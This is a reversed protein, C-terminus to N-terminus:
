KANLFEDTTQKVGLPGYDGLAIHAIQTDPNTIKSYPDNYSAIPEMNKISHEWTEDPLINRYMIAIVDGITKGNADVITEDWEMLYSYPIKEAAKRVEALKPNNASVVIVTIKENEPYELMRDYFSNYSYTNQTSGICISWYRAKADPYEEVSNPIPAPIFSFSLVQDTTLKTRCFLYDTSNNPFYEGRPALMFPVEDNDDSALPEYYGQKMITANSVVAEPTAVAKGTTIDVGEITPLSVGGFEDVGLYHRLCITLRTIDDTFYCVNGEKAEPFLSLDTGEKLVYITFKNGKSETTALYPNVSGNDPTINVDDLGDVVEGTMDNYVSFSFFRTDPYEGSIRLGVNPNNNTQYAYVWYNSFLDPYAGLNKYSYTIGWVNDPLTPVDGSDDSCSLLGLVIAMLALRFFKSYM